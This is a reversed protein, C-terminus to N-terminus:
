WINFNILFFIMRNHKQYSANRLIQFCILDLISVGCVCDHICQIYKKVNTIDYLFHNGFAIRLLCLVFRGEMITTNTHQLWTHHHLVCAQSCLRPSIKCIRLVLFSINMPDIRDFPRLLDIIRSPACEFSILSTALIHIDAGESLDKASRTVIGHLSNRYSNKYSEM